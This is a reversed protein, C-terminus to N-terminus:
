DVAKVKSVLMMYQQDKTLATFLNRFGSQKYISTIEQESFHIGRYFSFTDGRDFDITKKYADLEFHLSCSVKFRLQIVRSKQMEDFFQEVEFMDDDFNLMEFLFADQKDSLQKVDEGISFDFFRRAAPSDLKLTTVLVDDKGMSDRINHLAQEPQKFNYLTGGLFLMLNTTCSADKGYSDRRMVGGFQDRILDRVYLEVDLSAGFWQRLNKQTIELLAQSLDIGVYKKLKGSDIAGGVFDKAAMGNGVGLDVVNIFEYPALLRNIFEKAFDYLEFTSTLNNTGGVDLLKKLYAEWNIGAPGWYRYELPFEHNVELDNIINIIQDHDYAGYFDKSLTIERHSRKNRYKKGREVLQDLLHSNRLTDAIYTKGDHEFLELESSGSKAMEIWNRVAKDSVRYLKVLESNKFYRM